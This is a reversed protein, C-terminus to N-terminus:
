ENETPEIGYYTLINKAIDFFIPAATEAGYISKTPRDVIVLMSFKPNDAPAFGIFSAITKNPDYHGAIPIQATGTKGAIRYGKIKTWKAEGNNVANVLIETMVKATEPKIPQNLVKPPINIVKGDSLEVKSVVHPQMRKGENAISSFATLLEIPTVTIGQGFSATAFDISYWKEKPKIEPAVEGQLDVGTISGIGFKDFYSLMKDFGLSRAAFVMGTNDSHRIVDIMTINQYYQDNWTKISYEGIPVPGSCQTCKTEPTVAKADIASSMVLSKFTSGPEYINSIFPNKYLSPDYDQYSRQDFSPSSAMALVNGTKPDMVGVMGGVAGYKELGDKLEREVLFQISRDINLTLSRGEIGSTNKDIKSIIPRGLADRILVVSGEKGKLQRDYFGELGFYGKAEGSEDKGVFGLLQASMSAEPYFRTKQEQFGVGPLKLKEIREKTDNDLNQKIAVWFLDLSLNASISAKDIELIPSLTESIKDKEKIEKPNVYVLYSLKNTAIPFGDSTKIEGREPQVIVNKGYQSLGMMSLEEARVVQWYFLKLVIIFFLFLIFSFSIRYRWIM